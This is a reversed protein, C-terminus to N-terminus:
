EKLFFGHLIEFCSNNLLFMFRFNPLLAVQQISCELLMVNSTSNSVPSPPSVHGQSQECVTLAAVIVQAHRRLSNAPNCM